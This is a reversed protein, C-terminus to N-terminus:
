SEKESESIAMGTTVLQHGEKRGEDEVLARDLFRDKGTVKEGILPQCQQLPYQGQAVHTDINKKCTHDSNKYFNRAM